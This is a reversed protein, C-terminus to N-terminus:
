RSPVEGWSSWTRSCVTAGLHGRGLRTSVTEAHFHTVNGTYYTVSSSFGDRFARRM